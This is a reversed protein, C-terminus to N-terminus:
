STRVAVGGAQRMSWVSEPRQGERSTGAHSASTTPVRTTRPQRFIRGRPVSRRARSRVLRPQIRGQCQALTLGAFTKDPRLTAWAQATQNIKELTEKLTAAM